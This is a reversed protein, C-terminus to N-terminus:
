HGKNFQFQSMCLEVGEGLTVIAFFFKMLNQGWGGKQYIDNIKSNIKKSTKGLVSRIINILLQM